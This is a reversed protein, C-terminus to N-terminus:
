FVKAISFHFKSSHTPTNVTGNLMYGYDASVSVGSAGTYRWGLGCSVASDRTLDGTVPLINDFYGADIFLLVRQKKAFEPTYIEFRGLAGRDGSVDRENMGRLSSSGGLGFQEPYILREASYQGSLAINTSWGSPYFHQYSLSGRWLQYSASTGQRYQQYQATSNKGGGPINRVYGLSYNMTDTGQKKNGQYSISLPLSDIDVGINVPTGAVTLITGNKYQRADIGFDIGEKEQPTRAFNHVYHLGASSGTGTADISYLDQSIIRGSNTDSYSATLYVNDKAKPLPVNYLLGFQKVAAMQDPSTTYSLVATQGTGGVNGNLYTFRTRMQGTYKDGTNDVSVIARDAAVEAINIYADIKDGTPRLDVAINRFSNENALLIEGSLTQTDVAGGERLSPLAALIDKAASITNGQIHIQNVVKNEINQRATSEKSTQKPQNSADTPSAEGLYKDNSWRGKKIKGNHHYFTGYGEFKDNVFDGEYRDGSAWTFIGKGTRKDDDFDGEYRAGNPWTFIGKGARKNGVFDGEYRAGNPWVFVGRGSLKGEVFDGQYRKGNPSIFIGKGTLKDGVFDGEYRDGNVWSFIGKGTQKGDVWDGEYRDGNAWIFVGKGTLKDDAFDGDYRDGNAWTFIGKGSWKNDAFAGEYCDGNSYLYRGQGDLKGHKMIGEYRTEAKGNIFWQLVGKKDAYGDDDTIGSWTVFDGPGIDAVWVRIGNDTLICRDEAFGTGSLATLSLIIM